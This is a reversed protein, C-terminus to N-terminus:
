KNLAEITNFISINDKIDDPQINYIDLSLGCVIFKIRNSRAQDMLSVFRKVKRSSARKKFFLTKEVGKIEKTILFVGKSLIYVTINEKERNTKRKIAIELTSIARDIDNSSIILTLPSEKKISSSKEVCAVTVERSNSFSVTIASNDACWKNVADSNISSEARIDMREGPRLAKFKESILELMKEQSLGRADVPIVSGKYDEKNQSSARVLDNFSNQSDTTAFRYTKLGGSLYAANEFGNQKLIRYALYGRLGLGCFLIIEKDKPFLDLSERISTLPINIAGEPSGTKYEEPNRVDVMFLEKDGKHAALYEWSRMRVRNKLINDAMFGVINLPDKASSFQPAYAHDLEALSSVTGGNQIINAVVDLRKDVGKSGIIHAGLVKGDDPSFLLNISIEGSNPYFHASATGHSYISIYDINAEKLKRESLGTYGANLDLIKAISSGVSGPYTITNGSVINDAAIRAQKNVNGAHPFHYYKGSIPNYCEIVDGIAYIDENSTQLYENVKITGKGTIDLGALKALLNDPRIGLGFIVMDTSLVEGNNLNLEIKKNHNEMKDVDTNLYLAINKEKIHCHIVSALAYDFGPYVSANREILGLIMDTNSLSDLMELGLLGGGIIICSKPKREQIYSTIKDMDTVSRLTFIGSTNESGEIPPTIVEGGTSIVLKDYQEWYVEGADLDRISIRKNKVDIAIVDSKTRVQIRYQKYLAEPTRVFLASREKIVGGVYYPLGCNAYSSYSGREFITIQASEDLRRIRAAVNAGGAVGGIILVKM